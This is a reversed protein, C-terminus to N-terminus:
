HGLGGGAARGAGPGLGDLLGLRDLLAEERPEGMVADQVGGAAGAVEEVEGEPRELVQLVLDVQLGLGQAQRPGEGHDPRLVHEPM